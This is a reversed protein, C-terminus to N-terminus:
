QGMCWYSHTESSLVSLAQRKYVDVEMNEKTLREVTIALREVHMSTGLKQPLEMVKKLFLALLEVADYSTDGVLIKEKNIARQLLCDVCLVESTKAMKRAEDGYYWMGVNKRLHTYSVSM